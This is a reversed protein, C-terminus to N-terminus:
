MVEEMLPEFDGYNEEINKYIDTNKRGQDILQLLTVIIYGNGLNSASYIEPEALLFSDDLLCGSPYYKKTNETYVYGSGGGGSGNSGAGGGSSGGYWGSGGCGVSEGYWGGQNGGYGFGGQQAGYSTGYSSLPGPYNPGGGFGPQDGLGNGGYTGGGHGGRYQQWLAGATAYQGGGGGGAVIIRSYLHEYSNWAGGYRSIDSAGGGGFPVAGTGGGNWGGYRQNGMGGIYAYLTIPELCSYVGISIGGFGGKYQEGGGGQAGYCEFKYSGPVLSLSIPSGIYNLRIPKKLDLATIQM